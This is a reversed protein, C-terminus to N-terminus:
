TRVAGDKELAKDWVDLRKSYDQKLQKYQAILRNLEDGIKAERMQHTVLYAEVIFVPPPLVDALLDKDLVIKQYLPGNVKALSLTSASFYGFGVLGAVFMGVLLILKASLSLHRLPVLM